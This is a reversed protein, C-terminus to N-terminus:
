VSSLLLIYHLFIQYTGIFSVYGNPRRIRDQTATEAQDSFDPIKHLTGPFRESPRFEIGWKKESGSRVLVCM